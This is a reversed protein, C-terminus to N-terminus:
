IIVALYEPESVQTQRFSGAWMILTLSKIKVYPSSYILDISRYRNLPSSIEGFM